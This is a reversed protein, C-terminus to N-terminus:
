ESELRLPVSVCVRGRNGCDVSRPCVFDLKAKGLEHVYAAPKVSAAFLVASLVGAALYTITLAGFTNAGEPMSKTCINYFCNSGVILLLPWLMEWM